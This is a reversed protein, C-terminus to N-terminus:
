SIPNGSLNNSVNLTLSAELIINTCKQCRGYPQRISIEYKEDKRDSLNILLKSNPQIRQILKGNIFLQHTAFMLGNTDISFNEFRGRIGFRIEYFSQSELEAAILEKLVLRKSPESYEISKRVFGNRKSIWFEELPRPAGLLIWFFYGRRNLNRNRSVQIAMKLNIERERRIRSLNGFEKKLSRRRLRSKAIQSEEELEFFNLFEGLERSLGLKMAKSELDLIKLDDKLMLFDLGTQMLDSQAVGEFGHSLSHLM